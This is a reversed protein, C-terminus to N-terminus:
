TQAGSRPSRRRKDFGPNSDSVGITWRCSLKKNRWERKSDDKEFTADFFATEHGDPCSTVEVDAVNGDAMWGRWDGTRRRPNGSPVLWEYRTVDEVHRVVGLAAEEVADPENGSVQGVSGVGCRM